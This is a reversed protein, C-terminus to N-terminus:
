FKSHYIKQKESDYLKMVYSGTKQNSELKKFEFLVRLFGMGNKSSSAVASGM